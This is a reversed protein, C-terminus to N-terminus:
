MERLKHMVSEMLEGFSGLQGNVRAECERVRSEMEKFRAKAEWVQVSNELEQKLTAIEERQASLIDKLNDSEDVSLLQNQKEALLRDM